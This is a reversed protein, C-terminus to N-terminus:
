KVFNYIKKLILFNFLIIVTFFETTTEFYQLPLLTIINKNYFGISTNYLTFMKLLKFLDRKKFRQAKIVVM